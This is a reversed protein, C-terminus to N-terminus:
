NWSGKMIYDILVVIDAITIEGDQDCDAAEFVIDEEGQSLIYDVILITDGIGIVGDNDVDGRLYDYPLYGLQEDMWAVRATIWRKLYALEDSYSKPTYYNPWVWKNWRPWAQSNRQEAGYKNIVYALSDVTNMIADDSLNSRRFQKWRAKLQATYIPDTNVKYWWFPVLFVEGGPYTIDNSQYMWTDTRYSENYRAGGFALNFDWLVMKFRGDISDRRKFFKGSMRYGDVNNGLETFLQYDIFNQADIYKRYGNVPDLYNSALLSEEMEDIRNNIYNIQARTMDQIEPSKYQYYNYRDMILTGDSLMPHYHSSFFGGENCDVELLYGGTLEDGEEGPDDLNLRTKGKSVAECLVYVGYYTGDLFVEVLRGEPTYEMWPRALNFILLDRIMSRDAYPALLIWKNDKGMGLIDVKQKKVGEQELPGTMTHFSYPKKDSMAFSSNGRYRIGVYGEYDIHQGRHTVTDGFNRRNDGNHIIKMRATIRNDRQIMAGDVDIWVIPLNTTVIKVSKNDPPYNDARQAVAVSGLLLACLILLLQKM